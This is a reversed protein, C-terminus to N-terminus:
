SESAFLSEKWLTRSGSETWGPISDAADSEASGKQSDERHRTGAPLASPVAVSHGPRRGPRSGPYKSVEANRTRPRPKVQPIVQLTRPTMRTFRGELLREVGPALSPSADNRAPLGVAGNPDDPPKRCSAIASRAPSAPITREERTGGSSRDGVNRVRPLIPGRSETRAATSPRSPLSPGHVHARSGPHALRSALAKDSQERRGRRRWPERPRPM